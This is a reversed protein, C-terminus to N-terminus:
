EESAPSWWSGLLKPQLAWAEEDERPPSSQFLCRTMDNNQHHRTDASKPIEHNLAIGHLADVDMQINCQPTRLLDVQGVPAPRAFEKSSNVRLQRRISSNVNALKSPCCPALLLSHYLGFSFIQPPRFPLSLHAPILFSALVAQVSCFHLPILSSIISTERFGQM